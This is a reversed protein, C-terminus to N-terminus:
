IVKVVNMQLKVVKISIGSYINGGDNFYKKLCDFPPLFPSAGGVVLWHEERRLLPDAGVGDACDVVLWNEERLDRHSYTGVCKSSERNRNEFLVLLM